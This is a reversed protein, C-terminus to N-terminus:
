QTFSTGERGPHCSTSHDSLGTVLHRYAQKGYRLEQFWLVHLQEESDKDLQPTRQVDLLLSPM